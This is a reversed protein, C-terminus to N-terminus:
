LLDLKFERVVTNKPVKFIWEVDQKLDIGKLLRNPKELIRKVRVLHPKGETEQIRCISSELKTFKFGYKDKVYFVFYQTEQIRGTGLIFNGNVQSNDQLNYLYCHPEQIEITKVNDIIIMITIYGVIVGIVVGLFLSEPMKNLKYGILISLVVFFVFILLYLLM